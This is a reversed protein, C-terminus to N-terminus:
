FYSDYGEWGNVYRSLIMADKIDVKKDGNIDAAAEDIEIDEWGNVYRTLLMADASDIKKDKNLNGKSLPTDTNLVWVPIVTIDAAATMATGPDCVPSDEQDQIKWGGFKTGEPATFGCLPFVFQSGVPVQLSDMEGEGGNAEFSVTILASDWVAVASADADPCFSDGPQYIEAGCVWGNFKKNEPATFSCEPFVFEEGQKVTVTETEDTGNNAYLKVEYTIDEWQAKLVIDDKLTLKDGPMCCEERIMWGAFRKGEPATYSCQPLMIETGYSSSYPFMDGTGGNADFSINCILADWSAKLVVDATYDPLHYEDGPHMLSDDEPHLWGAFQKGEPATFGNEPLTLSGIFEAGEMTGKGGNADFSVKCIPVFDHEILNAYEQASSNPYGIIKTNMLMYNVPFGSINCAAEYDEASLSNQLDNEYLALMSINCKPNLFTVSKLSRCDEFACNAVNMVSKPLTIETLQTNSFCGYGITDLSEPITVTKLATHYFASNMATQKLYLTDGEMKLGECLEAVTLNKCNYCARNMKRVSSSVTIKQLKPHDYFAYSIDATGEPVEYETVTNCVTVLRSGDASMLGGNVMKFNENEESVSIEDPFRECCFVADGISELGKGIKLSHMSMGGFANDDLKKVSDTLDVSQLTVHNFALEGIQTTGGFDIERLKKCNEFAQAGIVIPSSPLIVREIESESFASKQIKTVPLTKVTSLIKVTRVNVSCGVVWVDDANIQYLVGGRNVVKQDHDAALQFKYGYKKAYKEATSDSYGVITGTFGTDSSCVTEADDYIETKVNYVTLYILSECRYFAHNGVSETTEPLVAVDLAKCYEFAQDGVTVLSNGLDIMDLVSCSSFAQREITEVGQAIVYQLKQDMRFAQVGITKVSDPLYARELAYCYEFAAFGIEELQSDYEAVPDGNAGFDFETVKSCRHFGMKGIRKVSTPITVTGTLGSCDRFAFDGIETLSSPFYVHELTTCDQFASDGIRKVTKGMVSYEIDAETIGEEYGCVYAEDGDLAYRIGDILLNEMDQFRYGWNKAYTQATSDKYGFITGEFPYENLGDDVGEGPEDEEIFPNDMDTYSGNYETILNSSIETKPNLFAIENICGNGSDFVCEGIKKLSKPLIVSKLATCTFAYDGISEIGEELQIKELTGVEYFACASIDKVSAPITVSKLYAHGTFAQSFDTVGKPVTFYTVDECGPVAVLQTNDASYLGGNARTHFHSNEESVTIKELSKMYSFAGAGVTNVQKGLNVTKVASCNEFARSEIVKLNSATLNLDLAILSWCKAFAQNGITETGGFNINRLNVAYKFAKEGIKKVTKPLIIDTLYFHQFFAKDDVATVPLGKIKEPIVVSEVSEDASSVTVHNEYIHYHIGDEEYETFAEDELADLSNFQYQNGSAFERATSESYGYVVGGIFNLMYQQYAALMSPSDDYKDKLTEDEDIRWLMSPAIVTNKSLFTVSSLCGEGFAYDGIELLSEPFTVTKLDVTRTFAYEDIYQLGEALDLEKLFMCDECAYSSDEVSAPVSLKKLEWNKYFAYSIDVTGEPIAYEESEAAYYVLREGDATFLAGDDLSFNMNSSDLAIEKVRARRFVGKGIEKLNKGIKISELGSDSFAFDGITQLADPLEISRMYECDSFAEDHIATVPLGEVKEPIIVDMWSSSKWNASIIEAHDSSLAYTIGDAEVTEPAALVAGPPAIQPVSMASLTLATCFCLMRKFKNKM